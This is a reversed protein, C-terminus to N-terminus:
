IKIHITHIGKKRLGSFSLFCAIVGAKSYKRPESYEPVIDGYYELFTPSIARAFGWQSRVSGADDDDVQTAKERWSYSRRERWYLSPKQLGLRSSANTNLRGAVDHLDIFECYLLSIM